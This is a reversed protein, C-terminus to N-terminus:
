SSPHEGVVGMVEDNTLTTKARKAKDFIRDVLDDTVPVNHRELWYRVNSKGSLPGIEIIQELGFEDAPVGSYVRNALWHDGKKYAKIIASAHVGTATRFADAGIVPYNDPIPVNCARSVLRCYEPLKRLDHDYVGMLKFNVMLLDLPANGVREGIGLACGHIRDAGAFYATIANVISLGRDKHGHWDIGVDDRGSADVMEKFFKVIRVVGSPTAHGVTDSICVREVGMEIATKYLRKLTDPRSRTTDETVYMVPVNNKHAFNIAAESTRLMRDEDWEEAFQRIPSSFLFLAAQIKLGTKQTIEVIPIIDNEITRAACYPYLKMGSRSIEAALALTDNYAQPGAGPLGIDASYCGLEEMLHLIKIKDDITPDAVSPSQLGDRLTEDNLKLSHSPPSGDQNWEYILDESKFEPM